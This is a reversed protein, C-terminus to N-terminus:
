KLILLMDATDGVDDEASYELSLKSMSKEKEVPPPAQTIVSARRNSAENNASVSPSQKLPEADDLASPAVAAPPTHAAPPNPFVPATPPSKFEENMSGNRSKRNEVKMNQVGPPIPAPAASTPSTTAQELRVEPTPKFQYSVPNGSERLHM